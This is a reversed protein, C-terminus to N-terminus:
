DDASFFFRAELKIEFITFSIQNLSENCFVADVVDEATFCNLKSQQIISHVYSSESQFDLDCLSVEEQCSNLINDISFSFKKEYNQKEAIEEPKSHFEGFNPSDGVKYESKMSSTRQSRTKEIFQSKIVKFQSDSSKESLHDGIPECQCTHFPKEIEELLEPRPGNLSTRERSVIEPVTM